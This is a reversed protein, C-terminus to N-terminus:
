FMIAGWCPISLCCFRESCGYGVWTCANGRIACMFMHPKRKRRKWAVGRQQAGDQGSDVPMQNIILEWIGWWQWRYSLDASHINGSLILQNRVLTDVSIASLLNMGESMANQQADKEESTNPFETSRPEGLANSLPEELNYLKTGSCVGPEFIPSPKNTESHDEVAQSVALMYGPDCPSQYFSDEPTSTGIVRDIQEDIISTDDRPLPRSIGGLQNYLNGKEKFFYLSEEQIECIDKLANVVVEHLKLKAREIIESIRDCMDESFDQNDIQGPRSLWKELEMTEEILSWEALLTEKEELCTVDATIATEDDMGLTEEIEYWEHLLVEQESWHGDSRTQSSFSERIHKGTQIGMEEDWDENDWWFEEGDVRSSQEGDIWDEETLFGMGDMDQDDDQYGGTVSYGLVDIDVGDGIYCGAEDMDNTESWEGNEHEKEHSSGSMEGNGEDVWQEGNQNSTAEMDGDAIEKARGRPTNIPEEEKAKQHLVMCDKEELLGNVKGSCHEAGSCKKELRSAHQGLLHLIRDCQAQVSTYVSDHPATSSLDEHCFSTLPEGTKRTQLAEQNQDYERVRRDSEEEDSSLDDGIPYDRRTSYQQIQHMASNTRM